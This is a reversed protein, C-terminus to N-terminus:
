VINVNLGYEEMVRKIATMHVDSPVEVKKIQYIIGLREYKKFGFKHYPLLEIASICNGLSLVFNATNRISEEEDNLGPVVPM